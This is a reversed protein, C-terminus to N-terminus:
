RKQQAWKEPTYTKLSLAHIAEKMHEGLVRYVRQHQQVMGADACFEPSVITAEFHRGDGDVHIYDCSLGAEILAKVNEVEM